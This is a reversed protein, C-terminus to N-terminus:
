RVDNVEKTTSGLGGIRLDNTVDDDTTLYKTFVGQVIAMKKGLKFVRDGQNQIGIFIHGENDENNYYDADIIGVQNCLRINHKFGISSRIYISLYEDENMYAKVGMPIKLIEGPALSIDNILHFDYGASYKTKRSPLIIDEYDGIVDQEFQAISIKEFGRM